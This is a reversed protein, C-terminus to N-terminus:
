LDDRATVFLPFLQALLTNFYSRKHSRSLFRLTSHSSDHIVAGDNENPDRVANFFYDLIREVLHPSGSSVDSAKV